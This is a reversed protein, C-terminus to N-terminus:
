SGRAVRQDPSETREGGCADDDPHDYSRAHEQLGPDHRAVHARGPQHDGHPHHGPSSDSAPASVYPSSQASIGRAPPSYTNMRSAYPRNHPKRKPHIRNKMPLVPPQAANAVPNAMKTLTSAPPASSACPMVSSVPPVTDQRKVPTCATATPATTATVTILQAATDSPPRITDTSVEKFTTSITPTPMDANSHPCPSQPCKAWDPASPLQSPTEGAARPPSAPNPAAM